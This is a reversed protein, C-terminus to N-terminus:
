LTQFQLSTSNQFLNCLARTLHRDCLVVTTINNLFEINNQFGFIRYLFRWVSYLFSNGTPEFWKINKLVVVLLNVSLVNNRSIKHHGLEVSNTKTWLYLLMPCSTSKRFSDLICSSKPATEVLTFNISQEWNWKFGKIRRLCLERSYIEHLNM